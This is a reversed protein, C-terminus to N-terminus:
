SHSNAQNNFSKYFMEPFEIFAKRFVEQADPVISKIYKNVEERSPNQDMFGALEELKETPLHDLLKLTLFKDLRVFLERILVKKEASDMYALGISDLLNDLYTNIEEPFIQQENPDQM